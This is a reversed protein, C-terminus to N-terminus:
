GTRRHRLIAPSDIMSNDIVFDARDRPSCAATYLQHALLYRRLSRHEPDPSSGDRNALRQVTVDIPVDLYVSLEWCGALEDRHLFMGDLILVAGAPATLVAPELLEDSRLDHAVPRYRRSGGPGLPDIVDSRLRRYDYSDLWCGLPSDRGRRYRVARVNHFDDASVRVVPRGGLQVVVALEDAFTTKGAGDRGDIAVRVGSDGIGAPISEAVTRLVRTRAPSWATIPQSQEERSREDGPNAGSRARGESRHESM